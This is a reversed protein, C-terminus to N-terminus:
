RPEARLGAQGRRFIDFASEGLPVSFVLIFYDGSIVCFLASFAQINCFTRSCWSTSGWKKDANM